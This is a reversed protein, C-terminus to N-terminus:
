FLKLQIPGDPSKPNEPPKVPKAPKSKAPKVPEGEEDAEDPEDATNAKSPKNKKVPDPSAKKNIESEDPADGTLTITTVASVDSNPFYFQIARRYVDIDSIANGVNKMIEKLCDALTRKYKYVVEAFQESQGCADQIVTHVYTSVASEKNGIKGLNEFERKVKEKALSIIITTPEM